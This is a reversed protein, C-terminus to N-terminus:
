LEIIDLQKRYEIQKDYQKVPHYLCIQNLDNKMVEKNYHITHRLEFPHSIKLNFKM